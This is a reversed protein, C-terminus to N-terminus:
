NPEHRSNRQRLPIPAMLCVQDAAEQWARWLEFPNLAALTKLLTVRASTEPENADLTRM